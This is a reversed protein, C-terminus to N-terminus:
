KMRAECASLIWSPRIWCERGSMIGGVPLYDTFYLFMVFTKNEGTYRRVSLGENTM